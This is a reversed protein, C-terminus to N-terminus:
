LSDKNTAWYKAKEMEIAEFGPCQDSLDATCKDCYTSLTAGCPRCIISDGLSTEVYQREAQMRASLKMMAVGVVGAGPRVLCGVTGAQRTPLSAPPDHSRPRGTFWWTEM